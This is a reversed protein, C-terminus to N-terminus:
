QDVRVDVGNGNKMPVLTVRRPKMKLDIVVRTKDGSKGVRVASVLDNRPIGPNAPFKWNGNIDVVVRDPNALTMSSYDMRGSSVIRVTAGKDRVYVVFKNVTGAQAGTEQKQPSLPAAPRADPVPAVESPTPKAEQAAPVLAPPVPKMESPVPSTSPVVPAPTTQAPLPAPSAPLAEPVTPRQGPSPVRIAAPPTLEPRSQIAPAPGRLAREADATELARAAEREELTRSDLSAEAVPLNQRTEPKRGLRNNLMVLLMGLICVALIIGLFVKNMRM